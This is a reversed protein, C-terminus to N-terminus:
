GLRIDRTRAVAGRLYPNGLFRVEVRLRKKTHDILHRFGITTAYGCNSQVAVRRFAVTRHGLSFRVTVLGSCGYGTPLPVGPILTGSASFQYPKHRARPPSVHATLKAGFRTLPITTFAEDAGYELGGAAHAAVLRYHFTTGPALGTITYTVPSPTAAASVIQAPSQEGYAPTTGYEFYASTTESQSVVTGTLTATTTNAVSAVGTIAEPPPHGTTTFSRDRGVAGGLKNSAIVRYHYVTGPTLGTLTKTVAIAKTSTVHGTGSVAGYEVTPGYQFSYASDEGGPNVTAHLVASSNSIATAAGTVVAPTSQAWATAAAVMAAVLSVLVIKRM